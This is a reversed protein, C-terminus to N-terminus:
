RGFYLNQLYSLQANNGAVTSDMATFQKRLSDAYRDLRTQERDASSRLSKARTELSEKRATLTGNAQTFNEVVGSLVDMVGNGSAPGALVAAVSASDTTLAKNLKTSDLSLKGDRTLSMGLSSLTKYTGGGSVEALVASSMRSTISRLSSDGSLAPNSGKNAGFGAAEHIKSIVSNYADVVAKLKTELAQPDSEVTISASSATKDTLALTVGQIAGVIQNTPSSVPIDDIKVQANQASQYKSGPINLSLLNAGNGGFTLANASGTDLGRVQLRYESGDYFVSASVRAGSANIKTALSDLTDTGDLAIQYNTGTGVQIDLTGTAGLSGTASSFTGSYNRQEQARSIIEVNYAGPLATGNASVAIAANSSTAKYSGIDRVSALGDVAKKLTSLYSSISSLTSVASDAQKARNKLANLTSSSASVLGTVIGETDMGSGVGGFSITGAM